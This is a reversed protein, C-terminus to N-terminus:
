RRHRRRDLERYVLAPVPPCFILLLTISSYSFCSRMREEACVKCFPAYGPRLRDPSIQQNIRAVFEEKPVSNLRTGAYQLPFSCPQAFDFSFCCATSADRRVAPEWQRHAFSNLRVIQSSM